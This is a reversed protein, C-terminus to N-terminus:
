VKEYHASLSLYQVCDFVDENVNKKYGLLRISHISDRFVIGRSIFFSNTSFEKSLYKFRYQNEEHEYIEITGIVVQRLKSEQKHNSRKFLVYTGVLNKLTSCDSHTSPQNLQM